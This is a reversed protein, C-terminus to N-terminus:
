HGKVDIRRSQAQEPKPIRITLIGDDLSADVGSPDANGPLTVRVEFQGTRRTRRRLIGKRERQKIEGSVILERERLEVNVDSKKAGPIEAEVIWADETEEIDVLPAWVGNAGVGTSQMLEDMREHLDQLEHVPNWRVPTAM